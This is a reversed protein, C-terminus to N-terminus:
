WIAVWALIPAVGGGGFVAVVAADRTNLLPQSRDGYRIRVEGHNGIVGMLEDSLTRRYAPMASENALPGGGFPFGKKAEGAPPAPVLRTPVATPSPNITSKERWLRLISLRLM